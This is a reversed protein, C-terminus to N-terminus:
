PLTYSQCHPIPASEGGDSYEACRPILRTPKGFSSDHDEARFAPVVLLSDCGKLTCITTQDDEWVNGQAINDWGKLSFVLHRM